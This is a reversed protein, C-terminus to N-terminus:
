THVKWSPSPMNASIVTSYGAVYAGKDCAAECLYCGVCAKANTLVAVGRWPGCEAAMSLCEFPCVDVCYRCGSCLEEEVVPRPWDTRRVKEALNGFTDMDSIFYAM